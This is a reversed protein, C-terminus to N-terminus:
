ISTYQNHKWVFKYRGNEDKKTEHFRFVPDEIYREIQGATAFIHCRAFVPLNRYKRALVNKEDQHEMIIKHTQKIIETSLSYGSTNQISNWARMCNKMQRCFNGTNNPLPDAQLLKWIDGLSFKIDVERGLVYTRYIFMVNCEETFEEVYSHNEYQANLRLVRQSNELIHDFDDDDAMWVQRRLM